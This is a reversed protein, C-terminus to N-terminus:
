PVCFEAAQPDLPAGSHNKSLCTQTIKGFRWDLAALAPGCAEDFPRRRKELTLGFQSNLGSWHNKREVRYLAKLTGCDRALWDGSASRSESSSKQSDSLGRNPSGSAFPQPFQTAEPSRSCALM